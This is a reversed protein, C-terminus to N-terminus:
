RTLDKVWKYKRYHYMVWPIKGVEDLCTCAYIVVAPWHFVYTGLAALPIAIGWMVVALSYFDFMTDGGAAFVGNITITNVARGIMYIAMVIMMQTLYHQATPTLKVAHIIVPTLALMIATSAFGIIYSIKVMRIGYLKGRKLNGAGLENGVLIGGGQALGDAACCILDRIVATVSNAAAADAGLHGMFSTYSTFGIGWLLCAGLLPLMCKIFDITLLKNFTLLKAFKLPLYGPRYSLFVAVTLEIIRATVTAWAAGMVGMNFGYILVANLIINIVVAASSLKAAAAIHDTVRIMVVYTQSIGTILYSIGAIRLYKIGIEILVEENTYLLMMQRPFFCCGLFFLVSIIMGLRIGLAFIDDMSKIDQKGWYQAGLITTTSIMGSLIINQVFQIQTALSVAAMSNQEVNGLMLADAAAVSAMMLAQFCIPLAYRVLKDLFEKDKFLNDKM